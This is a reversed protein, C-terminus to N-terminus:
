PSPEVERRGLNGAGVPVEGHIQGVIVDDVAVAEGVDKVM